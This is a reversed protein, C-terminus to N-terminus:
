PARPAAATTPSSGLACSRPREAHSAPKLTLQEVRLDYGFPNLVSGKVITGTGTIRTPRTLRISEEYTGAGVILEVGCAGLRAAKDLAAGITPFPNAEDGTPVRRIPEFSRLAEVHVVIFTCSERENGCSRLAAVSFADSATLRDIGASAAIAQSTLRGAADSDIVRARALADVESVFTAIRTIAARADAKRLDARAQDLKVQLSQREGDILAGSRVLSDLESGLATLLQNAGGIFGDGDATRRVSDVAATLPAARLLPRSKTAITRSAIGGL